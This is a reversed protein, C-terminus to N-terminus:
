VVSKRDVKYAVGNVTIEAEMPSGGGDEHHVDEPDWDDPDCTQIADSDLRLAVDGGARGWDMPGLAVHNYRIDTQICDYRQGDVEGPTNQIKCRYGCSIERRKASNVASIMAADMILVSGSLYKGNQDVREGVIGVTLAKANEPTVMGQHMDTVPASSLSAISEPHFVQEPPRYERVIKGDNRVYEFIGTRTFYAPLRVFGQPTIQASKSLRAQDYRQESVSM